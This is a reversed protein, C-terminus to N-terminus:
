LCGKRSTCDRPPEPLLAPTADAYNLFASRLQYTRLLTLDISCQLSFHTRITGQRWRTYVAGCQASRYALWPEQSKKLDALTMSDPLNTSAQRSRELYRQMEAEAARLEEATCSNLRTTSLANCKTDAALSMSPLGALAHCHVASFSEAFIPRM